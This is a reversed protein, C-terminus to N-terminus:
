FSFKAAFQLIRPDGSSQILGFTATSLRSVPANFNTHNLVNFFEFRLEFRQRERIPFYRILNTDMNFYGPATLSNWGANGYSGATNAAFAKANLWVLTSTDRVYPSGVVNPRDQGVGTLSADTGTTPYFPFGTHAGILFSLQWNSLLLNVARNTLKPVQYVFSNVLNHRLDADCSGYDADRNNPDQYTNTGLIVRDAIVEGTQM